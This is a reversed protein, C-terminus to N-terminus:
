EKTLTKDCEPEINNSTDKESVFNVINWDDELMDSQSVLWPVYQNDATSMLIFPKLAKEINAENCVAVITQLGDRAPDFLVLYMNKGNWGSRAVKFGLKLAEIAMGFPFIGSTRFERNCQEETIWSVYGDLFNTNPNANTLNNVLFGKDDGNEDSPLEWGRLDNYEKRTMPYTEVFRSGFMPTPKIEKLLESNM